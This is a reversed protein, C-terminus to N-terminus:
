LCGAWFGIVKKIYFMRGRNPLVKKGFETFNKFNKESRQPRSFFAGLGQQFASAALPQAVVSLAFLGAADGGAGLAGPAWERREHCLSVCCLRGGRLVCPGAGCGPAARFPPPAAAASRLGSGDARGTGFGAASGSGASATRDGHEASSASGSPAPPPLSMM